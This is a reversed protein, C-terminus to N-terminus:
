PQSDPPEAAAEEPEAAQAQGRRGKEQHLSDQQEQLREQDQQLREIQRQLNEMERELADRRQQLAEVQKRFGEQRPKHERQDAEARAAKEAQQAARKAQEEARKIQDAARLEARKAQEVARLEAGKAEDDNWNWSRKAAGPSKEVQEERVVAEPRGKVDRDAIIVRGKQRKQQAMLENVLRELRDLREELSTERDASTSAASAALPVPAPAPAVPLAPAVAPTPLAAPTPALPARPAFPLAAPPPPPPTLDDDPKPKPAPGTDPATPAPNPDDPALDASAAPTPESAVRPPAGVIASPADAAPLKTAPAPSGPPTNQALVLRPASYIALVALMAAASTLLGLRAKALQPSTNRKTNLIMNIRQQLQSKSNSVGPAVAPESRGQLRGALEALLLAYPRRGGARELVIDDCAIERELSLKRSIWGVAPHFFLVAHTFSQILNAWDDLRRVHALEHRLIAEVEAECASAAQDAPLLVVPHLFGLVLATKPTASVKLEVGRRVDMETLLRQFLGNLPAGALHAGAKVRRLRALQGLLLAVRWGAVGVWAAVLVACLSAPVHSTFAANRLAGAEPRPLSPFGGSASNEEAQVARPAQRGFDPEPDAWARRPHKERSEARGAMEIADRPAMAAAERRPEERVGSSGAEPERLSGTGTEESQETSGDATPSRPPTEMGLSPDAVAVAAQAPITSARHQRWCQAPILAAVLVLTAFWVAHRTTSNTRRLCGLGLGVLAALLIGQCGGNIVATVIQACASAIQTKM